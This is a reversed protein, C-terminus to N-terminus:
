SLVVPEWAILDPFFTFAGGGWNPSGLGGDFVWYFLLVENCVIIMWPVIDSQKLFLRSM